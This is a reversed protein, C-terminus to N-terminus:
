KYTNCAWVEAGYIEVYTSPDATFTGAGTLVGTSITQWRMSLNVTQTGIPVKWPVVLCEGRPYAKGTDAILQGNLFLGFRTWWDEGFTANASGDSFCQVGHFFNVIMQGNLTGEQTEINLDFDAYKPQSALNNWGSNWTELQLLIQINALYSNIGGEVGTWQRVSNYSQTQGKWNYKTPFHSASSSVISSTPPVLKENSITNIPMTQCGLHGNYQNIATTTNDNLAEPKVQDFTKPEQQRFVKM